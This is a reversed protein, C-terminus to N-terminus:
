LDQQIKFNWILIGTDTDTSTKLEITFLYDTQFDSAWGTSASYKLVGDVYFNITAGNNLSEARYFHAVEPDIGVLEFETEASAGEKYFGFIKHSSGAKTKFGFSDQPAFNEPNQSGWAVYSSYYSTDFFIASFQIVPNKATDPFLGTIQASHIAVISNAAAGQVLRLDFGRPLIEGGAAILTEYGDISEFPLNWEQYELFKDLVISRAAHDIIESAKHSQLSEGAGLHATEDAEHAAILRVIAEEIKENDILSKTLLGWVTM